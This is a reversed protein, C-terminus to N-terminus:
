APTGAPRSKAREWARRVEDVGIGLVASLRQADSSDLQVQGRELRTVKTTTMGARAGLEPQTLLALHRWDSLYRAAPDTVIVAGVDVLPRARALAERNLAELARRLVDVQPCAYGVEWKRVTSESAIESLRALDGRSM